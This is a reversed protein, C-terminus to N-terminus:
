RPALRAPYPPLFGGLVAEVRWTRGRWEKRPAYPNSQPLFPSRIGPGAGFGADWRRRRLAVTPGTFSSAQPGFFFVGVSGSLSTSAEVFSHHRAAQREGM